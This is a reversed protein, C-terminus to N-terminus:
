LEETLPKEEYHKAPDKLHSDLIAKAIIRALVKLGENVTPTDPKLEEDKSRSKFSSRNEM